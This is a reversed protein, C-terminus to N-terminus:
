KGRREEQQMEFNDILRGQVKTAFSARDGTDNSKQMEGIVAILSDLEYTGEGCGAENIKQKLHRHLESPESIVVDKESALKEILREFKRFRADPFQDSRSDDKQTTM